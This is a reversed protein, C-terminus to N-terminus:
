YNIPEEDMQKKDEPKIKYTMYTTQLWESFWKSFLPLPTSELYIQFGSVQFKRVMFHGQWALRRASYGKQLFSRPRQKKKTYRTFWIFLPQENKEFLWISLGPVLFTEPCPLNRFILASQYVILRSCVFFADM